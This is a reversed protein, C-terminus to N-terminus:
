YMLLKGALGAAGIAAQSIASGVRTGAEVPIYDTKTSTYRANAVNNMIQSLTTAPGFTATLTADVNSKKAQQRSAEAAALDRENMADLRSADILYKGQAVLSQRKNSEANIANTRANASDIQVRALGLQRQISNAERSISNREAQLAENAVNSRHTEYERARNSRETEQEVTRNHRVAESEVAVNHRATENLNAVNNRFTESETAFNHRFTEAERALNARNAEKESALNARQNELHAAYSIQNQTM